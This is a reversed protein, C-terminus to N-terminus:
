GFPNRWVSPSHVDEIAKKQNADDYIRLINICPPEGDVEMITYEEDSMPLGDHTECVPPGVWGEDMGIKLWELFTMDNM